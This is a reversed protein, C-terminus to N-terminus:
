TSARNVSLAGIVAFTQKTTQQFTEIADNAFLTSWFGVPATQDSDLSNTEKRLNTM